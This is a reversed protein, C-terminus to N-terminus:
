NVRSSKRDLLESYIGWTRQFLENLQTPVPHIELKGIDNKGTDLVNNINHLLIEGCVKATNLMEQAKASLKEGGQIVLQLNGLLSNIPNPLEHSFSFIFTKQQELAAEIMNKANSLEATRKELTKVLIINIFLMIVFFSLTNQVFKDAFTEPDEERVLRVLQKRFLTLYVTTKFIVTIVTAMIDGTMMLITAHILFAGGVFVYVMEETLSLSISGALVSIMTFVVNFISIYSRCFLLLALMQLMNGTLAPLSILPSTSSSFLSFITFPVFFSLLVYFNMLNRNWIIQQTSSDPYVKPNPKCIIRIKNHINPLIQQM